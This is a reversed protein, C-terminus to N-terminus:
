VQATPRLATPIARRARSGTSTSACRTSPWQHGKSTPPAAPHRARLGLRRADARIM